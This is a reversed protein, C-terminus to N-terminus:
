YWGTFVRLKSPIPFISREKINLIEHHREMNSLRFPPIFVVSDLPIIFISRLNFFSFLIYLKEPIM